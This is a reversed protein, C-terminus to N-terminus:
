TEGHVKVKINNKVFAVIANQLSSHSEELAVNAIEKIAKADDRIVAMKYLADRKKM